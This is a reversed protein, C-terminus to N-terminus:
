EHLLYFQVIIYQIDYFPKKCSCFCTCCQAWCCIIYILLTVTNLHHCVHKYRYYITDYMIKICDTFICCIDKTQNQYGHPIIEHIIIIYNWYMKISWLIIRLTTKKCLQNQFSMFRFNMINLVPNFKLTTSNNLLEWVVFILERKERYWEHKFTEVHEQIIRKQGRMFIKLTIIIIIKPRYVNTNM